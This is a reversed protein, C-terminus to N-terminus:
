KKTVIFETRRNDGHEEDSCDVENKCKNMLRSEGFGKTSLRDAVIGKRVLYAKASEARRNSLAMNYDDGGRSDTHSHLEISITPNDDMLKVLKDLEIAADARIAHENFDYYIDDVKYVGEDDVEFESNPDTVILKRMNFVVGEEEDEYQNLTSREYSETFYGDKSSEIRYVRDASLECDFVGDVDTVVEKLIEGTKNDILKVTAGEMPTGDMALVLGDIFVTGSPNRKMEYIRDVGLRNSAFYGISDGENYVLSFDDGSSNIPYNMNRPKKWVGDAIETKFIDLSGLSPHGNSSFYLTNDDKLTPFVENVPTNLTPGLNKPSTWTGGTRASVYLDYMGEGGGMDSSFYLTDGTSNLCPHMCSYDESNFSLPIINTWEGNMKEASYLFLNNFNDQNKERKKGDNISYSRTFVAYDGTQNFAIPGDNYKKNFIPSIPNQDTWTGNESKMFYMDNYSNGTWPNAKGKVQREATYAIGGDYLAPSYMSYNSLLPLPTIGYKSTDDKFLEIFQCSELMASAVKDGPKASLYEKFVLEAEDHKDASMLMSGYNYKDELSVQPYNMALKYVKQAGEYDKMNQLTLALMKLSEYSEPKKQLATNFKAKAKAYRLNDFDEKGSNLHYKYGCGSLIFGLILAYLTYDLVKRM